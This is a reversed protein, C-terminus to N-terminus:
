RASFCFGHAWKQKAVAARSFQLQSSSARLEDTLTHLGSHEDLARLSCKRTTPSHDALESSIGVSNRYRSRLSDRNFKTELSQDTKV